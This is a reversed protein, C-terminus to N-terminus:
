KEYKRKIGSEKTKWWRDLVTLTAKVDQGQDFDSEHIEEIMFRKMLQKVKSIPIMVEKM